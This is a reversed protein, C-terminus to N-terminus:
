KTISVFYHSCLAFEGTFAFLKAVVDTKRHAVGLADPLWVQLLLSKNYIALLDSHVQAGLRDAGELFLADDSFSSLFWSKEALSFSGM